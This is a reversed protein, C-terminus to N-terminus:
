EFKEVFPKGPKEGKWSLDFNLEKNEETIEATLGSNELSSYKQPAHWRQGTEGMPETGTISVKYKGKLLGDNPTFSSIQYTGDSSLSGGGPRAKTTGQIPMFTVSGFKLPEGDVTVTGGTPYRADRGDGCGAALLIATLLLSPFTFSRLYVFSRVKTRNRNKFYM